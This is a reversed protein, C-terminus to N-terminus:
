VTLYDSEVIILLLIHRHLSILKHLFHQFQLFYISAVEVGWECGLRQHSQVLEQIILDRFDGFDDLSLNGFGPFLTILELRAQSIILNHNLSFLDELEEDVVFQECTGLTSQM